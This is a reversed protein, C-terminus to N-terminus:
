VSLVSVNNDNQPRIVSNWALYGQFMANLWEDEKFYHLKTIVLPKLHLGVCEPIERRKQLAFDLAIMELM